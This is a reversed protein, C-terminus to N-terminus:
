MDLVAQTQSTDLIATPKHAVIVEPNMVLARGISVLQRDARTLRVGGVGVFGEEKFHTTLLRHAFGLRRM